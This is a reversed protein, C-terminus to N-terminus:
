RDPEEAGDILGIINEITAIKQEGQLGSLFARLNYGKGTEVADPDHLLDVSRRGM